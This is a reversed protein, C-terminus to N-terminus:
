FSLEVITFESLGNTDEIKLRDTVDNFPVYLIAEFGDGIFTYKFKEIDDWTKFESIRQKKTLFVPENFIVVPKGSKKYEDLIKKFQEPYGSNPHKVEDFVFQKVPQYMLIAGKGTM